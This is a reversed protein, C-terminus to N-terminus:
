PEREAPVWWRPGEPRLRPTRWCAWAAGGLVVTSLVSGELGFGGGAIWSSGTLSADWGPTDVLDFGSVPLDALFAQGWNWGLHAGTAWWLSGTRLVLVGLFLGAVAVNVVGIWGVSPNGLHLGAFVLSTVLLAVAAGRSEALLQLPYGRVLVEEGAAAVSLFALSEGGRGIWAGLGGPDASWRIADTATLLALPPVLLLLGLLTGLLLERSLGPRLGFGLAGPPDGQVGLVVWGATLAALLSAVVGGVVGLRGGGVLAFLALVALLVGLWLLFRWGPALGNRGGAPERASAV